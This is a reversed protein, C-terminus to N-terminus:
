MVRVPSRRVKHPLLVRFAAGRPRGPEYLIAGGLALAAERARALGCGEGSREARSTESRAGPEFLHPVFEPSVGRGRDEVKVVIKGNEDDWARVSIPPSGYSVANALLSELILDLQEPTPTQALRPDISVKIGAQVAPPLARVREAIGRALSTPADLDRDELSGLPEPEVPAAAAGEWARKRALAPVEVFRYSLASCTGAVVLVILLNPLFGAAGALTLGHDRLAGLLPDHWLFISYSALGAVALPRWELLAVLRSRPAPLFVLSAILGLALAIPSQVEVSSLDGAYYLELAAAGIAAGLLPAAIPWWRPFAFRGDEWLVRLIALTMGVAFWDAHTPFTAQLVDALALGVHYVALKAAVGIAILLGVPAFAAVLPRAGARRVLVAMLVGLLPVLLYFIVEVTLSWSPVIGAGNIFSPVYTQALFANALLQSPRRLLEHEFLLAVVLLVAWYAPLIRLARNVLYARLRPLPVGRIVSAVYPRFLLFGSLVFFLTVGAQLADTVKVAPGLPAPGAGPAASLYVHYVVIALAAVARM